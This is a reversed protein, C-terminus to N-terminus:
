HIKASYHRERRRRIQIGFFLAIILIPLLGFNLALTRKRASNFESEDTIKYISTDAASKEMLSALDGEGRLKLLQGTLFDYNRFDGSEGSIFGTMLSSVFFQDAVLVVNGKKAALTYQAPTKGSQLATKELTFPNTLFLDDNVGEAPSQLWASNTTVLLPEAGGYLSIPSGWFVTAGQKAESQSQVSVWLPYNTTVYKADSGEGSEMTIPQCAIDEVLAPLFAFGLSNLYPIIADNKSKSVKWEQEISTTYPSTAFFAKTGKEIASKLLEEQEYPIEGTGFVAIEDDSSLNKLVSDASFEDLNTVTFGRATLWPSVYTYSEELSRGNGCLLYVNREKETLLQQVRQTLDYELTQTSLVFPILASKELYQLLVASYVTVYETKTGKDSRIQQGQVGLASLRESDAKELTLTIKRNESTYDALFETVDDTQPYLEKLENSRFYTIRFPSDIKSLLERSAKSVTFKKSKTLDLRFYLNSSSLSLLTLISLILISTLRPPNKGLRKNESASSLLILTVSLILYYFFNRSDLIGKGFSDFHWAFSVKRCIWSLFAPLEFYLPLLHLFNVLALLSASLILPLAANQPFVSFCFLVACIACFGYFFIGLFLSVVQGFDVTGFFSVSIPISSLLLIPFAFASFAALSLAFFRKFPALPISDDLILPRLRLILVPVTIISVYPVSLFFPRLDTSGLGSVFFKAGFFFRFACFLVTLLSSAYFLPDVLYSFIAAKYPPRIKSM